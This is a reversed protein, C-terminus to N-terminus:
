GTTFAALVGGAALTQLHVNAQGLFELHVSYRSSGPGLLRGDLTLMRGGPVAQLWGYTAYAQLGADFADLHETPLDTQRCPHANYTLMRAVRPQSAFGHRAHEWTYTDPDAAYRDYFHWWPRAAPSGAVVQQWIQWRDGYRQQLGARMRALDLLGIPGGAAVGAGPQLLRGARWRTRTLFHGSALRADTIGHTALLAAAAAGIQDAPTATPLCVTLVSSESM